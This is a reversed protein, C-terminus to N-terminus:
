FGYHADTVPSTGFCGWQPHCPICFAFETFAPFAFGHALAIFAIIALKVDKPFYRADGTTTKRYPTFFHFLYQM